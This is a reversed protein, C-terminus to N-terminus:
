AHQAHPSASQALVVLRAASGFFPHFFLPLLMLSAHPMEHLGAFGM